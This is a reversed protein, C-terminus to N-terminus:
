PLIDAVAIAVGPLAAVTLTAGRTFQQVSAYTGDPQPARHVHVTDDNLNVIWYEAIGNAAYLPGQIDRDDAFSSGAVEIVLLVDVPTPHRSEYDDPSPRLVSVDPEPESDSLRVPDQSGMIAQGQIQGGLLRILRKVVAAHRPGISMKTVVEGHILEVRDEETLIGTEVLREYEDVTFRYREATPTHHVEPSRSDAKYIVEGHILEVPHDETLIGLDTMRHYDDVTFRHHQVGPPFKVVM